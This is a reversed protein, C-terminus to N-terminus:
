TLTDASQLVLATGQGQTRSRRPRFGLLDSAEGEKGSRPFRPGRLWRSREVVAGGEDLKGERQDPENLNRGGSRESTRGDQVGEKKREM